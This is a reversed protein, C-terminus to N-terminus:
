AEHRISYGIFFFSLCLTYRTKSRVVLKATTSIEHSPVVFSYTGFDDKNADEILLKHIQKDIVIHVRGLGTLPQGNKMWNGEVNEQSFKVEMKVIDGECVTLDTLPQMLTIPRVSLYFFILKLM